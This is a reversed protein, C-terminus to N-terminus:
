RFCPPISTPLVKQLRNLTSANSLKYHLLQNQRRVKPNGGGYPILLLRRGYNQWFVSSSYAIIVFFFSLQDQFFYLDYLLLWSCHKFCILVKIFFLWDIPQLEATSVAVTPTIAPSYSNPVAVTSIIVTM